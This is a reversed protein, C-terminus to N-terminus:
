APRSTTAWAGSPETAKCRFSLEPGVPGGRGGRGGRPGVPANGAPVLSEAQERRRTGEDRREPREGPRPEAPRSEDPGAGNASSRSGARDPRANARPRASTEEGEPRDTGGRSEDRRGRRRDGGEPELAPRATVPAQPLDFRTLLMSLSSHIAEMPASELAIPRRAFPLPADREPEKRSPTTRISGSGNALDLRVLHDASGGPIATTYERAFAAEEPKVLRYRTTAEPGAADNIADVVQAALAQPKPFTALPTGALDAPTITRNRQEVDPFLQPHNFLLATVGYLFVWPTMLLGAYLHARRVLKMSQNFRTRARARLQAKSPTSRVEPDAIAM